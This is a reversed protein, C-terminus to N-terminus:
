NRNIKERQKMLKLRKKEHRRILKQKFEKSNTNGREAQELFMNEYVLDAISCFLKTNAELLDDDPSVIIPESSFRTYLHKSRFNYSDNVTCPYIVAGTDKALSVPGLKFELMFKDTTNRTGEAFYFVDGGALVIKAAQEQAAVMSKISNLDVIICGINKYLKGRKLKLLTSSTM